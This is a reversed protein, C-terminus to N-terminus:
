LLERTPIRRVSAVILSRRGINLLVPISYVMSVKKTPSPEEIVGTLPLSDAFEISGGVCNVTRM